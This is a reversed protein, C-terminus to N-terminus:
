AVLWQVVVTLTQTDKRVTWSLTPNATNDSTQARSDAKNVPTQLTHGATRERRITILQRNEAIQTDATEVSKGATLITITTPTTSSNSNIRKASTTASLYMTKM